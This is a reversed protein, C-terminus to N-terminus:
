SPAGRRQFYGESDTALAQGKTVRHVRKILRSLPAIEGAMLTDHSATSADAFVAVAPVGEDLIGLSAALAEGGELDINVRFPELRTTAAALKAWTPEFQKCYDCMGSFFEVLLARDSAGVLNQFEDASRIERQADLASVAAAAATALLFCARARM